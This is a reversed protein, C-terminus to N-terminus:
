GTGDHNTRLQRFRRIRGKKPSRRVRADGLVRANIEEALLGRSVDGGGKTRRRPEMSRWLRRALRRAMPLITNGGSEIARNALCDKSEESGNPCAVKVDVEDLCVCAKSGTGAVVFEVQQELPEV